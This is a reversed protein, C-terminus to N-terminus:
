YPGNYYATFTITDALQSTLAGTDTVETAIGSYCKLLGNSGDTGPIFNYINGNASNIEVLLPATAAKNLDTFLSTPIGGTTYTGSPTLTITGLVRYFDGGASAKIISGVTGVARAVIVGQGQITQNTKIAVSAQGTITQNTTAM